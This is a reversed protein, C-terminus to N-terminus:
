PADSYQKEAADESAQEPTLEITRKLVFGVSTNDTPKPKLGALEHMAKIADTRSRLDPYEVEIKKRCAPCFAIWGKKTSEIAGVLSEYHQELDEQVKRQWFDRAYENEKSKAM